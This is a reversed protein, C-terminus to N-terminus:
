NSGRIIVLATGEGLPSCIVFAAENIHLIPAMGELGCWSLAVSSYASSLFFVTPRLTQSFLHSSISTRLYISILGRQISVGVNSVM